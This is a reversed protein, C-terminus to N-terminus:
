HKGQARPFYRWFYNLAVDQKVRQSVTTTLLGDENCINWTKGYQAPVFELTWIPIRTGRPVGFVSQWPDNVIIIRELRLRLMLGRTEKFIAVCEGRAIAPTVSIDEQWPSGGRPIAPGRLKLTYPAIIKEEGRGNIEHGTEEDLLPILEDCPRENLSDGEGCERTIASIAEVMEALHEVTRKVAVINPGSKPFRQIAEDLTQAVRTAMEGFAATAEGTQEELGKTVTPIRNATLEELVAHVAAEFVVPNKTNAIINLQQNLREEMPSEGAYTAGHAVQACVFLLCVTVKPAVGLLMRITSM